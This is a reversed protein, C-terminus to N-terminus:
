EPLASVVAGHGDADLLSHVSPIPSGIMPIIALLMGIETLIIAAAPGAVLAFAGALLTGAVEFVKILVLSTSQTRGLVADPIVAQSLAAGNVERVTNFALQIFLSLGIVLPAASRPVILAFPLVLGAVGFLLQARLIARGVGFMGVMRGSLLSGCVAGAGGFALLLGIRTANMDFREVLFILLITQFAMGFMSTLGASAVLASLVPLRRLTAFGQAVSKRIPEREADAHSEGERNIKTILAGSTLYTFADLVLVIPASFLGILSGALAPGGIRAVSTSLALRANARPLESRHVISPLFSIDTVNFVLTLTGLAFSIGILHVVTLRDSWALLPIALLMAARGLDAAILLPRKRLRDVWVGVLLGLVLYPALSAATLLSLHFANANLRTIALLPIAVMSLQSGLVSTSHAAWLFGFDRGPKPGSLENSHM